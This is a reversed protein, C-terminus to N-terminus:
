PTERTANETPRRAARERLGPEVTTILLEAAEEAGHVQIL